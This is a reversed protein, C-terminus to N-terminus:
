QTPTAVTVGVGVVVELAADVVGAVLGGPGVKVPLGAVQLAHCRTAAFWSQLVMTLRYPMVRAWNREYLGATELSQAVFKQSPYAYQTPIPGDLEPMMADDDDRVVVEAPDDVVDKKM